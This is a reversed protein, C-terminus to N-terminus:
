SVLKKIKKKTMFKIEEFSKARNLDFLGAISMRYSDASVVQGNWANGGTALSFSGQGLRQLAGGKMQYIIDTGEGTGSSIYSEYIRNERPIYFVNGRFGGASAVGSSFGALNKVKKNKVTYLAFEWTGNNDYENKPINVALLEPINDNNINILKYKDYGGVYFESMDDELWDSYADFADRRSTAAIAEKGPIIGLVVSLSLLIM